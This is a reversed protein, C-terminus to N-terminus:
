RLWTSAAILARRPRPIRVVRRSYTTTARARDPRPDRSYIAGMIEAAVLRRRRGRPLAAAARAYYERAREAQHRLLAKVQARSCAAAPTRPRRRAPRGRHVGFRRLDEQPIYVRGRALDEPCTVCSTPSSCRWASTSRTSGRARIAPLRLDRPLDPRGGVRRPHLVRLPRRVDRLPAAGVDMEVGEVLADFARARCTSSARRAAGARAGARTAPTGGDFCPRSRAGGCRWRAGGRSRARRRTWRMTWPAASTGCPSSRARAEDAPLVLFSYYFNTDRAMSQLRALGDTATLGDHTAMSAQWILAPRMPRASRRVTTCRRRLGLAELQRPHAIGGLWTLACSGACAAARRRRCVPRGTTSCRARRTRRLARLAAQWEPTMRGATSIRKARAPAIACSRARCTSGATAALRVGFDQWFNTSSCRRACRTPRADLAPRRSAPSACCSGASRIPRAGATTSCTTGPRTASRRRGPPVRQASRRVARGAPPVDRMTDRSRSSSRARSTPAPQRSRRRQRQLRARWDDLLACASPTPRDGARRRLRRRTRAFAYIAAIHPRM